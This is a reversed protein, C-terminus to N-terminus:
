GTASSPNSFGLRAELFISIPPSPSFLGSTIVRVGRGHTRVFRVQSVFFLSFIPIVFRTWSIDPSQLTVIPRVEVAVQASNGIRGLPIQIM